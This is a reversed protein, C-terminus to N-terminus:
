TCCPGSGSGGTGGSGKSLRVGAMILFGIGFLIAFVALVYTHLFDPFYMIGLGAVIFAIGLLILFYASTSSPMRIEMPEEKHRVFAMMIFGIGMGIAGGVDPRGIALGIGGGIFMCAVFVLGGARGKERDESM